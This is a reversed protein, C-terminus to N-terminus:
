RIVRVTARYDNQPIPTGKAPYPDLKVLSITVDGHVATSTGRVNIDYESHGAIPPMVEIRVLADGAWVCTADTPCRSDDLVGTLRLTLGVQDVRTTVGPTLLVQQDVRPTPQPLSSEDCGAAVPAAGLLGLLGLVGWRLM